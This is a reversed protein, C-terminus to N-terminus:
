FVLLSISVILVILQTFRWWCLSRTHILCLCHTRGKPFPASDAAAQVTRVLVFAIFQLFDDGATSVSRDLARERRITLRWLAHRRRHEEGTLRDTRPVQASQLLVMWSMSSVWYSVGSAINCYFEGVTCAEKWLLTKVHHALDFDSAIQTPYVLFVQLDFIFYRNPDRPSIAISSHLWWRKCWRAKGHLWKRHSVAATVNM